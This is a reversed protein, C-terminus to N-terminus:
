SYKIVRFNGSKRYMLHMTLNMGILIMYSLSGREDNMITSMLIIINSCKVVSEEIMSDTSQITSTIIGVLRTQISKPGGM